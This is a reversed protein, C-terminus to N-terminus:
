LVGKIAAESDAKLRPNELKRIHMEVPEDTNLIFHFKGSNDQLQNDSFWKFLKRSLGRITLEYIWYHKRYWVCSAIMRM